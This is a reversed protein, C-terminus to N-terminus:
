LSMKDSDLPTDKGRGIAQTLSDNQRVELIYVRIEVKRVREGIGFFQKRISVIMKEGKIDLDAVFKSLDLNKIQLHKIDREIAILRDDTKFAWKISWLIASLVGSLGLGMLMEWLKDLQM